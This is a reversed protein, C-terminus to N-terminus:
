RATGRERQRHMKVAPIFLVIGLLLLMVLPWWVPRNWEARRQRRLEPDIRKYKLTNNAMLNPKVNHYWAHHLAFAKPFFGWIWPADRRLIETMHDIVQQREPGNAMNKMQDFLENFEPSDYNSANEGGHDTPVTYCFSFTRRIPITPM